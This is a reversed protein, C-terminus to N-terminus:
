SCVQRPGSADVRLIFVVHHGAADSFVVETKSTFTVSGQQYPNAWGTPPNGSGDSLPQSARYWRGAINADDIGCHTYLAYPSSSAAPSGGPSGGVGQDAGCGALTLAGIAAAAMVGLRM